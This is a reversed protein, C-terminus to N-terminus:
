KQIKISGNVTKMSLLEGGAGLPADIFWGVQRKQAELGLGSDVDISGNVVSAKVDAEMGEILRVNINGNVTAFEHAGVRKTNRYVVEINGNISKAQV